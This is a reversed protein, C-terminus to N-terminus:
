RHSARACRLATRDYTDLTIEGAESAADMAEVICADIRTPAMEQPLWKVAAVGLLLGVGLSAAMVGGVFWQLTRGFNDGFASSYM